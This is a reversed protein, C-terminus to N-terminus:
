VISSHFDSSYILPNPLSRSSIPMLLLLTFDHSLLYRLKWCRHFKWPDLEPSLSSFSFICVSLSLFAFITFHLYKMLLIFVTSRVNKLYFFFGQLYANSSRARIPFVYKDCDGSPLLFEHPFLNNSVSSEM